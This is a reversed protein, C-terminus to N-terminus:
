KKIFKTTHTLMENSLTVIYIGSGFSSIDFSAQSSGPSVVRKLVEQGVVSYFSVNLPSLVPRDFAIHLIDTAPNPFVITRGLDELTEAELYVNSSGPTMGALLFWRDSGDIYRGYSYGSKQDPYILSDIYYTKGQSVHAIGIQGGDNDLKFDLHVVGQEPQGDAWIIKFSHPPMITQTTVNGSIGFLTPFALDNTLFLGALDITDDGANYLEIWDDYENWEDAYLSNKSCIENIYLNNIAKIKEFEAYLEMSSNVVMKLEALNSTYESTGTTRVAGLAMDFSADASTVSYQHLEVALINEGPYLEFDNIDFHYYKTELTNSNLAFTNRNIYGEPMNYRKLEKGNLYVVAGDDLLLDLTLGTINATDSITFKKRFYYTIYKNAPDNGYSLITTEDGDGFGLQGNGTKWYGDNYTLNKWTALPISNDDLYKWSSHKSVLEIPEHKVNVIKWQKFRYNKDSLAKIRIQRNGFYSGEWVNDHITIDNLSLFPAQHYNSRINITHPDELSFFEQLHGMVNAPRASAYQRAVGVNNEWSDMSGGWRNLHYPMEDAIIQQLSDIIRNVRTPNYISHIYVTFKDVFETRFTENELLKRFLLTSWPPNPWGPGNPEAAFELTNDAAGRGYLGFGFDLDYLIWRWKSGPESSKWYKINNGPWDTNGSYIQVIMYNIYEEIDIRDTVYSYNAQSSLDSSSIFDILGAYDEGSGSVVVQDLELMDISDENLGYNSYIYGENIKERTNLIGWYEGNLYVVSPTYANYDIDMQGIVLAQMMADHFMTRNWDNGSNRLMISTFRDIAKSQFLPYRINDAGYKDRFSVSFSKQAATRSCAGAIKVGAGTQIIREGGPMFYEIYANREWEQNWNAAGYCYGEIGNTGEVYIGLTPDWLFDPDMSLSVVPLTFAHEKIFYTNAIVPSSVMGYGFSRAKLATTKSISIPKTYQTSAETPESGDLTYRITYVAQPVSLTVSQTGAYRGGPISFEPAPAQQYVPASVNSGGQTSQSFYYWNSSGDPNRGFSCNQYPFEVRVSDVVTGSANTLVLMERNSRLRFSAHFGTNMKDFWIVKYGRASITISPMKWLFPLAPDNSLYYASLNKSKDSPNYIEVWESYNYFSEDLLASANSTM